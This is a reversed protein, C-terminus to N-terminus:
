RPCVAGAARLAALSETSSPSRIFSTLSYHSEFWQLTCTCYATRGGSSTECATLYTQRIEPPYSSLATAAVSDAGTTMTTPEATTAPPAPPGVGSGDSSGCGASLALAVGMAPVAVRRIIKKM